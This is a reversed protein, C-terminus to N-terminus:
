SSRSKRRTDDSFEYHNGRCANWDKGKKGDEIIILSSGDKKERKGCIWKDRDVQVLNACRRCGVEFMIVEGM